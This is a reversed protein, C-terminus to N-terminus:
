WNSNQAHSAKEIVAVYFAHMSGDPVLRVTQRTDSHLQKSNWETLSSARNDLQIDVPVIVADSAKRLLYDVVVENEEPAMTCTSYVIRGGPRLLKWASLLAQKQLKSLRKVHSPSWSDMDKPQTINMMGEGSCPADLLIRDFQEHSLKHALNTADHLTYEGATAGLRQLNRQLRHLRTKSNDNATINAGNGLIAAIHSTKGGPAACMDLVRHNPQLDLLIVPLWSASNQLYIVGEHALSDTTICRVTDPANFYYGDPCWSCATTASLLDRLEKNNVSLSSLPNVRLGLQKHQSLLTHAEAESINLAKATRELWQQQKKLRRAAPDKKKTM